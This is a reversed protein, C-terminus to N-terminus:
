KLLVSPLLFIKTSDYRFTNVNRMQEEARHVKFFILLIMFFSTTRLLILIFSLLCAIFSTKSSNFTINLM